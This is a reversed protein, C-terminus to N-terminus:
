KVEEVTPETITGPKVIHTIRAIRYILGSNRTYKKAAEVAEVLPVGAGTVAVVYRAEDSSDPPEPCNGRLWASLDTPIHGSVLRFGHEVLISKIIHFRYADMTVMDSQRPDDSNDAPPGERLKANEAELERVKTNLADIDAQKLGITYAAHAIQHRLKAEEQVIADFKEWDCESRHIHSM